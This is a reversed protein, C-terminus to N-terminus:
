NGLASQGIVWARGPKRFTLLFAFGLAVVQAIGSADLTFVGRADPGHSIMWWLNLCAHLGIAPWLSGFRHVVWAFLAGGPALVAITTAVRILLDIVSRSELGLSQRVFERQIDSAQLMALQGILEHDLDQFHALAFVVASVGIAWSLPWRARRLLQKFLFGRFLVEEAFPGLLVTGVFVAPDISYAAGFPLALVMPVTALLGFGYGRAMSSDLGLEGFAEHLSLRRVAILVLVAPIVWVLGKLLGEIWVDDLARWPQGSVWWFARAALYTFLIAGAASRARAM